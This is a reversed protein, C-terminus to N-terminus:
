TISEETELELDKEEMTYADINIGLGYDSCEEVVDSEIILHHGCKLVIFFCTIYALEVGPLDNLKGVEGPINDLLFDIHEVLEESNVYNKSDLTWVGIQAIRKGGGDIIEEGKTQSSSPSQNLIKTIENPVLKNGYLCISAYSTIKRKM